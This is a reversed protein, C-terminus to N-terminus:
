WSKTAEVNLFTIKKDYLAGTDYLTKTKRATYFKLFWKSAPYEVFLYFEGNIVKLENYAEVTATIENGLIASSMDLSAEVAFTEDIITFELGIGGSAILLNVSGEAYAGMSAQFINGTFTIVGEDLALEAGLGISGSVGAEVKFPVIAITFTSSFITKREEWTKDWEKSYSGVSEGEDFVTLGLFAVDVAWSGSGSTIVSKAEANVGLLTISQDFIYLPFNGWATAYGGAATSNKYIVNKTGFDLGIAIKSKDGYTHAYTEYLSIYYSGYKIKRPTPTPELPASLAVASEAAIESETEDEDAQDFFAYPVTITVSNNSNDEDLSQTDVVSLTLSFTNEDAQADYANHLATYLETGVVGIDWPFYHENDTDPFSITVSNTYTNNDEHWFLVDYDVGNVRASGQIQATNTEDNFSGHKVADLYGILDSESHDFETFNPDTAGNTLNYTYDTSEDEEIEPLLLFGDGIEAKIAEFDHHPTTDVTMLGYSQSDSETSYNNTTDDGPVVGKPDVYAKVRYTGATTIGSPVNLTATHTQSGSTLNEIYHFGAVHDGDEDAFFDQDDAILYFQVGVHNALHGNSDKDGSATVSFDVTFPEGPSYTVNDPSDISILSVDASRSSSSSHFCGTLLAIFVMTSILPINFIM